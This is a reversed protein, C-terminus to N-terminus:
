DLYGKDLYLKSIKHVAEVSLPVDFVNVDMQDLDTKNTLMGPLFILGTLISYIRRKYISNKIEEMTPPKTKCGIKKMTNSLITLYTELLQEDHKGKIELQPCMILFHQLDIAPSTYSVIQYDVLLVDCSKRDQNNKYMINNVWLDGHNLVCFENPDHQFAQLLGDKIKGVLNNLKSAIEQYEEEKWTKKINESLSTLSNEIFKFFEESFRQLNCLSDFPQLLHPEKEYVAVSGAHFKAIKEIIKLCYELSFGKLKEGMTYGKKRLDEMIIYQEDENYTDYAKNNKRSKNDKLITSYSTVNFSNETENGPLTLKQM